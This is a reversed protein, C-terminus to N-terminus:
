RDFAGVAVVRVRESTRFEHVIEADGATRAGIYIRDPSGHARRTLVLVDHGALRITDGPMVADACVMGPVSTEPRTFGPIRRYDPGLIAGDETRVM